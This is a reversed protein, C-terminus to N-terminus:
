SRANQEIIASKRRWWRAAVALEDTPSGNELRAAAGGMGLVHVTAQTLQGEDPMAARLQDAEAPALEGVVQGLALLAAVRVQPREEAVALQMLTPRQGADAVQYLATLALVAAAEESRVALMLLQDALSARYPSAALLLAAQHRREHHVHFLAERILRCLMLDADVSTHSSTSEQVRGALRESVGRADDPRALEGHRRCLELALRDDQDLGALALREHAETPMAAHIGFAEIRQMPNRNGRLMALGTSELRSIEDADFHNRALKGAVAWAAGVRLQGPGDILLRMLVDSAQRDQVEQLLSLPHIVFETAPNTVLAGLARVAHRRSTPHRILMRLS